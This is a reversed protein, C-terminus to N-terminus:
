GVAIGGITASGVSCMQIALIWVASIMRKGGGTGDGFTQQIRPLSLLSVVLSQSYGVLVVSTAMLLSWGVAARSSRIDTKASAAPGRGGQHQRAAMGRALTLM